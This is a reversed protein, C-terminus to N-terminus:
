NLAYSEHERILICGVGIALQLRIPIKTLSLFTADFLLLIM